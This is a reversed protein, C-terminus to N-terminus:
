AATNILESGKKFIRTVVGQIKFDKSVIIPRHKRNSSEPKLLFYGPGRVLRKITSEGDVIVVVIQGETRTPQQKVLVLDGNEIKEGNILAQNMSDGRVRLLFFKASSPAVFDKPLHIWGEMNEEAVMFPGAPAEGLLPIPRTEIGKKLVKLLRLGRAGTWREIDGEEELWKLYRLVTRKSGVQLANRLEEITPPTGGNKVFVKNIVNVVEEKSLIRKRGM